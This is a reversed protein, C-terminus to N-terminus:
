ALASEPTVLVTAVVHTSVQDRSSIGAFNLLDTSHAAEM